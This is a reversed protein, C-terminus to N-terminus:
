FGGFQLDRQKQQEPSGSRTSAAAASVTGVEVALVVIVWVSSPRNQEKQQEGIYAVKAANAAYPYLRERRHCSRSVM